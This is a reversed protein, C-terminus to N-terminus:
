LSLVAVDTSCRGLDEHSAVVCSRSLDAACRELAHHLYVSSQADLANFPEDILVVPTNVAFAVSLWVKRQTGTSLTSLPDHVFSRLGFGEVHQLVQAEDLTPYLTRMFGAYEWPTLHDFAIPGPGCYFVRQRYLLPQEAMAAGQVELTGCLAPLAGSLLKLLTSKGSGNPGRLWTVGGRFHHSWDTFVYRQPYKFSLGKVALGM